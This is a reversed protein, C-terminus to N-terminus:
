RPVKSLIYPLNENSQQLKHCDTVWLTHFVHITTQLTTGFIDEKKKRDEEKGDRQRRKIIYGENIYFPLGHHSGYTYCFKESVITQKRSIIVTLFNPSLTSLLQLSPKLHGM